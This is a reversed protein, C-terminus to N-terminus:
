GSRRTYVIEMMKMEKGDPGPGFMEFIEVDDSTWRTTMRSTIPQKSVPDTWSGTFTCSGAADCSGESVMLGTSMSDNWTSWHKGTVNDYGSMGLGTFPHGMMQSSVEEIMVRDGLAMRRKATGKEVTAPASPDQWSRIELDYSGAAKALQRHQEGPTGAAMYAEMQAQQEPTMQAADAGAEQALAPLAAACALTWALTRIM